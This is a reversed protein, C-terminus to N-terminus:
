AALEANVARRADNAALAPYVDLVIDLANNVTQLDAKRWTGRENCEHLVKVASKIKRADPTDSPLVRAVVCTMLYISSLGDYVKEGEELMYFWIRYDRIAKRLTECRANQLYPNVYQKRKCTKRSM